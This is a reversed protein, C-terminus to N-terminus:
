FKVLYEVIYRDLFFVMLDAQDFNLFWKLILISFSWFYNANMPCKLAFKQFNLNKEISLRFHM